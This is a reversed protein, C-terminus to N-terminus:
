FNLGQYVSTNVSIVSCFEQTRSENKCTATSFNGPTSYDFVDDDGTALMLSINYINPATGASIDFKDVRMNQGLLETPNNFRYNPPACAGLAGLDNCPAGCSSNSPLTDKLLGFNGGASPAAHSPAPGNNLDIKYGLNFTYRTKGICVYSYQSPDSVLTPPSTANQFNGNIDQLISQAIEQTQSITVGKYFLKGIAFFITLGVMLVIAFISTAISVEAITFGGEKKLTRLKM